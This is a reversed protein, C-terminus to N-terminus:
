LKDKASLAAVTEHMGEEFTETIGTLISTALQLSQTLSPMAEELETIKELFGPEGDDELEALADLHSSEDGDTTPLEIFERSEVSAVVAVASGIGDELWLRTATVPDAGETLATGIATILRTRAKIAVSSSFREFRMFM